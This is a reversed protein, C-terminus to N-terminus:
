LKYIFISTGAKYDPQYPNKIDKLWRYEDQPNRQQGPALAGFANQLTNISVALWGINQDKPNGKASWWYETKNGMYYRPDGGGFYDVAIKDINKEEAFDALRKL